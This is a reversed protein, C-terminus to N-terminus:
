RLAVKRKDTNPKAQCYDEAKRLWNRWAAYWDMKVANAGSAALWHDRFKEFERKADLAPHNHNAYGGWKEPLSTLSEDFRSGKKKKSVGMPTEKEKQSLPPTPSFVRKSEGTGVQGPVDGGTGRVRNNNKLRNRQNQKKIRQKQKRINETEELEYALDKVVALIQKPSVGAAEMSEITKLLSM